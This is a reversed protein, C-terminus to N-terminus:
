LFGKSTESKDSVHCLIEKALLRAVQCHHLSHGQDSTNTLTDWPFESFLNIGPYDPDLPGLECEGYLCVATSQVRYEETLEFLHQTLFM